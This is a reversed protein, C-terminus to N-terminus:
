LKNWTGSRYEYTGAGAGPNFNTGDAYVVMGERPKDPARNVPRLDLLLTGAHSDQSVLLLEQQVYRRLDEITPTQPMQTPTYPM